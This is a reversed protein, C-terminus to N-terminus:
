TTIKVGSADVGPVSLTLRVTGDAEECDYHPQRSVV